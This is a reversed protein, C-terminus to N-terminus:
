YAAADFVPQHHPNAFDKRTPMGHPPGRLAFHDRRLQENLVSYPLKLPAQSPEMLPVAEAQVPRVNGIPQPHTAAKKGAKSCLFVATCAPHTYNDRDRGAQLTEKEGGTHMSYFSGQMAADRATMALHTTAAGYRTAELHTDHEGYSM